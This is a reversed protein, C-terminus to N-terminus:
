IWDKCFDGSDFKQTSEARELGGCGEGWRGIWEIWRGGGGIIDGTQSRDDEFVKDTRFTLWTSPQLESEFPFFVRFKRDFLPHRDYVLFFGEEEVSVGVSRKLDEGWQHSPHGFLRGKLGLLSILANRYGFAEGEDGCVSLKCDKRLDVEAFPSKACVERFNNWKVVCLRSRQKWM